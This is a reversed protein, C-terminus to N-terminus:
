FFNSVRVCVDKDLILLNNFYGISKGWLRESFLKKLVDGIVNGKMLVCVLVVKYVYDIYVCCKEVIM